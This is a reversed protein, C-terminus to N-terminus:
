LSFIIKSSILLLPNDPCKIICNLWKASSFRPKDHSWLFLTMFRREEAKMIIEGLFLKQNYSTIIPSVLWVAWPQKVEWWRLAVSCASFYGAERRMKKEVTKRSMLSKLLIVRHGLLLIKEFKDDWRIEAKYPWGSGLSQNFNEVIM